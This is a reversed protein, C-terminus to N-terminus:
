IARIAERGIDRMFEAHRSTVLKLDVDFMTTEQYWRALPTDGVNIVGAKELMYNALSLTGGTEVYQDFVVARMGKAVKSVEKIENKVTRKSASFMSAREDFSLSLDSNARIAFLEPPRQGLESYAGRISDAIPVASNATFFMADPQLALFQHLYHTFSESGVARDAPEAGGHLMSMRVDPYTDSSLREPAPVREFEHPSM